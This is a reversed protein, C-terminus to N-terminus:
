GAARGGAGARQAVAFLTAIARDPSPRRGRCLEFDNGCYHTQAHKLERFSLRSLLSVVWPRLANSVFSAFHAARARILVPRYPRLVGLRSALAPAPAQSAAEIRYAGRRMVSAWGAASTQDSIAFMAAAEGSAGAKMWSSCVSDNPSRSSPEARAACPRASRPTPGPSRTASHSGLRGAHGM